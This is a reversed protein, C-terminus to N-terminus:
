DEVLGCAAVVVSVKPEGDKTGAEKNVRQLVDMGEVVRGIVVHKGNLKAQPGLTFYFQSTNSNKGSNCMGVVGATDHKMKLGKQEDKFKKGYISEGGSGNEHTVDGGQIVFDSVCRHFRIGKYHLMKGSQKSKGKSGTCLAKFNEVALPCESAYLELEVRDEPPKILLYGQDKWEYDGAYLESLRNKESGGLEELKDSTLGYRLNTKAVFDVARAYAAREGNIDIDLFARIRQSM